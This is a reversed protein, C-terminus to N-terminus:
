FYQIFIRPCVIRPVAAVVSEACFLMLSYIRYRIRITGIETSPKKDAWNATNSKVKSFDLFDTKLAEFNENENGLRYKKGNIFVPRKLFPM